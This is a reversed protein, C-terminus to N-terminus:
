NKYQIDPEVLIDRKRQITFHNKPINRHYKKVIFYFINIGVLGFPKNNIYSKDNFIIIDFVLCM